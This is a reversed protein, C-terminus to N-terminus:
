NLKMNLASDQCNASEQAYKLNYCNECDICEYCLELKQVHSCDSIDKCYFNLYSYFSDQNYDGCFVLYCNRNHTCSNCYQSNEGNLNIVAQKPTVLDLERFQEFFPRNFDYDRGYTRFDWKDSYWSESNYVIYPSTEPYISLTKQGSLKCTNHYLNRENRFGLRRKHRINIHTTPSPLGMQKLIKQELESITFQKGTVQCTQQM